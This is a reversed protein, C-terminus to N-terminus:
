RSDELDMRQIAEHKDQENPHTYIQTSSINKHGLLEQVTRISTVRMARSAFTHRLMHPYVTRGLSALAADSIIRHVHRRVIPSASRGSTFAFAGASPLVPSWHFMLMEKLAESLRASVPIIREKHNKAIEQRVVLSTVPQGDFILDSVKLGAAESVRLGAELMLLAIAHNRIGKRVQATTGSKCLLAELLRAIEGASLTKPANM